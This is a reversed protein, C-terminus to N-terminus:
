PLERLTAIDGAIWALAHILSTLATVPMILWFWIKRIGLTQTPDTYIFSFTERALAEGSGARILGPLDLWRWIIGAMVILFVLLLTDNVLAIRARGKPGLADPLLGVTMHQGLAIAMSAGLFALCVMLHVALEDTWALPRRLWGSAAGAVMALFIVAVLAAGLAKEARLVAASLRSLFGTQRRTFPPAPLDTM